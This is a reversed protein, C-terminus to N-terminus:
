GDNATNIDSSGTFNHSQNFHHLRVRHRAAIFVKPLVAVAIALVYPLMSLFQAPTGEGSLNIVLAEAAGFLLCAFFTPIPRSKSLILAAIATYGRGNSMGVNFMNAALSLQAGGLGCLLGALLLAIYKVHRINVGSAAAVEDSAGTARLALGYPTRYFLYHLLFPCLMAFYVILSNNTFMGGFIPIDKLLPVSYTKLVVSSFLELRGTHGFMAPLLFRTFGAAISVVAIGGVVPDVGLELSFFGYILMFLAGTALAALLGVLISGSLYTGAIASFSGLLMFGELGLNFLEIKLCFMGGLAVLLTPAALRMMAGFISVLSM